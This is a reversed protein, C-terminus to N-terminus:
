KNFYKSQFLILYAVACTIYSDAINFVPSFFTWSGNADAMWGLWSPMNHITFLPFYLMDVVKGHLLPAYGGAEPLFTAVTTYTSESFLLGYFACDIINGLAGALIMSFGVVVGTPAKQRNILDWIYWGIGCSAVIRFLSLALKGWQGDGLQMGYAFGPNEIFYLQFWDGAVHISEGLTMNCKVLLKVVQDVVLLLIILITAKKNNM